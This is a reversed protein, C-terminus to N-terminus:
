SKASLKRIHEMVEESTLWGGPQNLRALGKEVEAPSFIPREVSGVTKGNPDVLTIPGSTESIQRALGADVVIQTM